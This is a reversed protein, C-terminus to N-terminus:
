GGNTDNDPVLLRDLLRDLTIPLERVRIGTAHFVANAIAAATGVIGIEGIGKAGVPGLDPEDEDLWHVEITGIDAQSAIHYDALDRATFDGFIPDVASHEHLAMSLGWTMGGVLQSRATVPNVIRGAAFVGLLRPVRVEGTDIDVRAEAFQAGFAFRARGRGSARVAARTDVETSLGDAPVANGHGDVLARLDRCATAVSWSWSAMGMSGGALMSEPLLTDGIAVTVEDPEVGLAEAAVVTLATRAGTGIDVAALEVRYRGRADVSARARSPMARAPYMSSAM